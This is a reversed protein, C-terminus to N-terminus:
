KGLIFTMASAPCCGTSLIITVTVLGNSFAILFEM